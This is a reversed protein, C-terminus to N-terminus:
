GLRQKKLDLYLTQYDLMYFQEVANEKGGRYFRSAACKSEVAKVTDANTEGFMSKNGGCGWRTSYLDWAEVRELLAEADQQATEFHGVFDLQSYLQPNM